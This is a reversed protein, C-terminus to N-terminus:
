RDCRGRSSTLLSFSGNRFVVAGRYFSSKGQAPRTMTADYLSYTTIQIDDEPAATVLQPDDSLPFIVDGVELENWRM